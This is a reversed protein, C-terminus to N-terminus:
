RLFPRHIATVALGMVVCVIIGPHYKAVRFILQLSVYSKFNEETRTLLVTKMAIEM